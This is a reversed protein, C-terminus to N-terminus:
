ARLARVETSQRDAPIVAAICFKFKHVNWGILHYRTAPTLDVCDEPWFLQSTYRQHPDEQQDQHSERGQVPRPPGSPAASTGQGRNSLPKPPARM